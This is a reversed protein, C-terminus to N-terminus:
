HGSGCFQSSGRAGGGDRIKSPLHPPADSQRAPFSRRNGGGAFEDAPALLEEQSRQRRLRSRCGVEGVRGAWWPKSGSTQPSREVKTPIRTSQQITTDTTFENSNSALFQSNSPKTHSQITKLPTHHKPAHHWPHRESNTHLFQHVNNAYQHPTSTSSAQHLKAQSLSM